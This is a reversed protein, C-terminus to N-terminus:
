IRKRSEMFAELGETFVRRAPTWQVTLLIRLKEERQMSGRTVWVKLRRAPFQLRNFDGTNGLGKQGFWYDSVLSM